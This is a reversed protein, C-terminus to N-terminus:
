REDTTILKRSKTPLSISQAETAIGGRFSILQM